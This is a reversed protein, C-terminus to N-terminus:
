ETLGVPNHGSPHFYPTFGVSTNHVTLNGNADKSLQELSTIKYFYVFDKEILDELEDDSILTHIRLDKTDMRDWGEEVFCDEEVDDNYYRQQYYGDLEILKSSVDDISINSPITFVLGFENEYKNKYVININEM